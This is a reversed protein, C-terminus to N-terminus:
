KCMLVWLIDVHEDFTPEGDKVVIILSSYNDYYMGTTSSEKVLYVMDDGLFPLSTLMFIDLLTVTM